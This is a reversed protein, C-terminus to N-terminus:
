KKFQEIFQPTWQKFDVLLAYNHKMSINIYKSSEHKNMFDLVLINIQNSIYQYDEKTLYGFNFTKNSSKNLFDNQINDNFFNQIPGNPIWKFNKHVILKIQNNPLLKILKIKDLYLLTQILEIEKINYQAVIDNFSLHNLVCTAVLLTKYDKLIFNEQEETLIDIQISLSDIKKQLDEFNMDIFDLIKLLKDLSIENTSFIRKISAESISLHQAINKYLINRNKLEQKLTKLIIQNNM